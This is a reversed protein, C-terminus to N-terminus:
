FRSFVAGGSFVPLGLIGLTTYIFPLSLARTGLFVASLFIVLTQFTVPVPSYPLYVRIRSSLALLFVFIGLKVAEKVIFAKTGKIALSKAYM